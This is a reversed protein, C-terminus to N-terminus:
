TVQTALSFSTFRSATYGRETKKADTADLSIDKKMGSETMRIKKEGKDTDIWWNNLWLKKLKISREFFWGKTNSIKEMTQANQIESTESWIKVTEKMGKIETKIQKRKNKWDRLLSIWPISKFGNKKPLILM